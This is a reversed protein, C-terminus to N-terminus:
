ESFVRIDGVLKRAASMIHVDFLAPSFVNTARHLSLLVPMKEAVSRYFQFLDFIM